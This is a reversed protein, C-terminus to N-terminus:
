IENDDEIKKEILLENVFVFIDKRAVADTEYNLTVNKDWLDYIRIDEMEKNELFSIIGKIFISNIYDTYIKCRRLINNEKIYGFEITGWNFSKKKFLMKPTEIEYNWEKSIYKEYLRLYLEEKEIDKISIYETYDNTYVPSFNEKIADKLLEVTIGKKVDCLNIVRSKVSKVGHRAMKAIDANLLEDMKALNCNVLLTGHHLGIYSDKYYANGSIKKGQIMIDNRGSLDTKINCSKLAKQILSMSKNKDYNQASTIISFNLNGTDHFVTGGGTIRRALDIHYKEILEINCEQFANQHKGLVVCDKNKWLFLIHVNRDKVYKLLYEEIALNKYISFSDSELILYSDM